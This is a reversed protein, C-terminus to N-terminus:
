KRNRRPPRAGLFLLVLGLLAFFTAPYIRIATVIPESLSAEIKTVDFLALAGAVILCGVGTYISKKNM